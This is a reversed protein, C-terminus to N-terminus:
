RDDVGSATDAWGNRSRTPSATCSDHESAIRSPSSIRYRARETVERIMDTVSFM